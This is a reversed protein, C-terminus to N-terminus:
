IERNQVNAARRWDSQADASIGETKNKTQKSTQKNKEEGEGKLWNRLHETDSGADEAQAWGEASVKMSTFLRERQM